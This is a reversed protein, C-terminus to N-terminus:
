FSFHFVFRSVKEGLKESEDEKLASYLDDVVLGKKYGKWFLPNIWWFFLASVPNAKQRPNSYQKKPTFDM